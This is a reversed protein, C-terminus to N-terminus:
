LFYKRLLFLLEPHFKEGSKIMKEIEKISFFELKAVVDPNPFFPGDHQTKFTVLVKPPCGAVEYSDKSFFELKSTTGLEEQYERLAAEEYSEGSQVHGGVSTCWHGPCFSVRKSRLQLAMRGKNDFILVHVIRHRLLKRYVEKKPAKGIINDDKDVVDLVEM